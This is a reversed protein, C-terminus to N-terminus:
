TRSYRSARRFVIRKLKGVAKVLHPLYRDSAPVWAREFITTRSAFGLQKTSNTSMQKHAHEPFKQIYRINAACDAVCAQVYFVTSVILDHYACYILEGNGGCQPCIQVCPLPAQGSLKINANSFGGSKNQKEKWRSAKEQTCAKEGLCKREM